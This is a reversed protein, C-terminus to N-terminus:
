EGSQDGLRFGSGGIGSPVELGVLQVDLSSGHDGHRVLTTLGVRERLHRVETASEDLIEVMALRGNGLALAAEGVDRHGLRSDNLAAVHVDRTKRFPLMKKLAADVGPHPHLYVHVSGESGAAIRRSFQDDEGRSFNRVGGWGRSARM